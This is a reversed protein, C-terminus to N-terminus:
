IYPFFVFQLIISSKYTYHLHVINPDGYSSEIM